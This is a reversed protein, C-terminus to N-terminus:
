VVQGATIRDFRFDEGFKDDILKWVNADDSNFLRVKDEVKFKQLRKLAETIMSESCDVGVCFGYKDAFYVLLEASGCGFDLLNEGGSLHFLKEESENKLFDEAQTKRLGTTKDSWYDIWYTKKM